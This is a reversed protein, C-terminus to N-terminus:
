FPWAKELSKKFNDENFPVRFGGFNSDVLAARVEDTMQEWMILDQYEGDAYYSFELFASGFFAQTSHQIRMSTNSGYEYSRNYRTGLVRYGVFASTYIKTETTYKKESKSFSVGLIRPSELDPNDVWVVFNAWDHRGSPSAFWFRKPFYWAYMIAWVDQYWGARGYVQSGKLAVKCGDAGNSGKLGGSTEGAANVAPFSACGDFINLGPKFKVAAKESVTVAEPQPIPQVKEHELSVANGAFHVAALLVALIKLKM